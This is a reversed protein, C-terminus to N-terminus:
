ISGVFIGVIAAGVFAFALPVGLAMLAIFTIILPWLM